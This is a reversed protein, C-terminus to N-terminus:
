LQGYSAGQSAAGECRFWFFPGAYWVLGELAFTGTEKTPNMTVSLPSICTVATKARAQGGGYVLVLVILPWFLGELAFCFPRRRLIPPSLCSHMTPSRVKVGQSVAGDVSFVFYYPRRAGSFVPRRRLTKTQSPPKTAALDVVFCFARKM